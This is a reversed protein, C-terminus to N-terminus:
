ILFSCHLFMNAKSCVNTGFNVNINACVYPVSNVWDNRMRVESLSSGGGARHVYAGQHDVKYIKRLSAPTELNIAGQGDQVELHFLRWMM